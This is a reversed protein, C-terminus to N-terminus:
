KAVKPREQTETTRNRDFKAGLSISYFALGFISLTMMMGESRRGDAADRHIEMPQLMIWLGFGLLLLVM